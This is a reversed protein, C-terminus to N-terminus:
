FELGDYEAQIKQMLDPIELRQPCANMCNGCAVCDGPKVELKNMARQFAFKNGFLKWENYMAFTEPIDLGVPCPMCYLCKTCPVTKFSTIDNVVADILQTAKEDMPIPNEATKVNDVVHDLCSMGSLTVQVGPINFVYSLALASAKNEGYAATIKDIADPVCRALFGGRIPEMVIIPLNRRNCIDILQQADGTAVDYYNLQLQVFDWDTYDLIGELQDASDHFSFGLQKIRGKKKEELLYEVVKLNKAKQWSDRNVSHVLYNDFYEVQCKELQKEFVESVDSEKELKFVPMKSVLWFSERPYKKLAAGIFTESEGNHYPWATDFYNVGHEYAYDVMKQAHEWDIKGEANVPLRMCGFGLPSTIKKNM